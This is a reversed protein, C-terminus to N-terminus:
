CDTVTGKRWSLRAAHGLPWPGPDAVVPHYARSDTMLCRQKGRPWPRHALGRAVALVQLRGGEDEHSGLLGKVALLAHHGPGGIVELDAGCNV